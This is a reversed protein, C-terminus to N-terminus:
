AAYLTEGSRFRVRHPTPEVTLPFVWVVAGDDDTVLFGKREALEAVIAVVSSEALDLGDAIVQPLIPAGVRPLERAVFHPVRRHDVSLEGVVSRARRVFGDLRREGIGPPLRLILRWVGAKLWESM